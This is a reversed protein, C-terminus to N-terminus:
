NYRSERKHCFFSMLGFVFEWDTVSRSPNPIACGCACVYICMNVTCCRRQLDLKLNIM